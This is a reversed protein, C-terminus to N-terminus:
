GKKKPPTIIKINFTKLVADVHKDDKLMLEATDYRGMILREYIMRKMVRPYIYEITTEMKINTSVQLGV